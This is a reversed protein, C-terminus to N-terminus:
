RPASAARLQAFRADRTLPAMDPWRSLDELTARSAGHLIELTKERRQLAEFVLAANFLVDSNGPALQLAQNIETEARQHDFLEAALIAVYSHMPGNRPDRSVSTEALKLARFFCDNAAKSQRLRRHCIGAMLWHSMRNPSLQTAKDFYFLARDDSGQYHYIKGLTFLGQSTEKAQLALVTEREAEAYRGLNVYATALPLRAGADPELTVAREFCQAAENYRGQRFHLNGLEWWSRFYTPELEVAKTLSALANEFENKGIYIHAMQVHPASSKADLLAARQLRSLAEEYMTNRQLLIAAPVHVSALDQNRLEAQRVAEKARALLEQDGSLTFKALLAEALAGWVLPSDTDAAAARELLSLAQDARHWQWLLTRGAEYDNRAAPNVEATALPVTGLSRTVFGSLAVPAYHWQDNSYRMRWDKTRGGAQTETLAAHLLIGDRDPQLSVRLVHTADFGQRAAETIREPSGFLPATAVMRFGLRADSRITALFRVSDRFLAEAFRGASGSGDFPVVALRVSTAPMVMQRYSYLGVLFALVLVAVAGV